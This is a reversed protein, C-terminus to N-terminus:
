DIGYAPFEVPRDGSAVGLVLRGGSLQDISAAAKALDLPHRLTFVASGTALTIKNTCAALYGLYVFPDFVQGVDGFNPDHLPVDRVWVAAFDAQEAQKVLAVQRQM